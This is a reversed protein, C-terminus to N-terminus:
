GPYPCCKINIGIRDYRAKLSDLFDFANYTDFVDFADFRRFPGKRRKVILFSLVALLTVVKSASLLM